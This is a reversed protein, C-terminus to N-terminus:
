ETGDKLKPTLEEPSGFLQAYRVAFPKKLARLASPRVYERAPLARWYAFEYVHFPGVDERFKDFDRFRDETLVPCKWQRALMAMYLDDRGRASHSEPQKAAELDYREVVNIYVKNRTAADAYAVRTDPDNLVSERDKVVYMVRGPYAVRVIPATRDITDIIRATNLAGASKLAKGHIWHALNLTDVVIHAPPQVTRKKVAGGRAGRLRAFGGSSLILALVILCILLVVWLLARVPGLM